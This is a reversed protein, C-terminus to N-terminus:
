RDRPPHFWLFRRNIVLAAAPLALALVAGRLAFVPLGASGLVVDVAATAIMAAGLGVYWAFGARWGWFALGSGVGVIWVEFIRQPASAVMALASATVLAAFVRLWM